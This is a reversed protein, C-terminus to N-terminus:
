PTRSTVMTRAVTRVVHSPSAMRAIPQTLSDTAPGQLTLPGSGTDVITLDTEPAPTAGGNAAPTDDDAVRAGSSELLSRLVGAEAGGSTMLRISIDQLLLRGGDPREHARTSERPLRV